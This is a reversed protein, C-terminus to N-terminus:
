DRGWWWALPIALALDRMASDPTVTDMSFVHELFKLNAGPDHINAYGILATLIALVGSMMIKLIREIMM